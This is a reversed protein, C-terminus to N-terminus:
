DNDADGLLSLLRIFLNAFDLYIAVASDIANKMTYPIRMARNLDYVVFFSFLTVGAWDWLTMTNGIPIGLYSILPLLIQGALLLLLGGFLWSRWSELSQPILTGAMGLGIVMATTLLLIRTVSATTYMAVVPGTIVGFSVTLLMYGGLSIIPNDNDSAIWIGVFAAVLASYFLLLSFEWSLAFYSTVASTAIGFATWFTVWFAYRNASMNGEGTREWLSTTEM